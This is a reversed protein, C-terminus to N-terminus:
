CRVRMGIDDRIEQLSNSGFLIIRAPLEESRVAKDPTQFSLFSLSGEKLYSNVTHFVDASREILFVTKM